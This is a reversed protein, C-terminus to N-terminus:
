TACFLGCFVRLVVGFCVGGLGYKMAKGEKESIDLKILCELVQRRVSWFLELLM